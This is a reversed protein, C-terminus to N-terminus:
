SMVIQGDATRGVREVKQLAGGGPGRLGGHDGPVDRSTQGAM